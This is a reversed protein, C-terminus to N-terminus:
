SGKGVIAVAPVIEGKAEVEMIAFTFGEKETEINYKGNPLPTSVVFQGLKNTKLARIPLGKTDKVLIITDELLNGEENKVIGNLVNPIRTLPPMILNPNVVRAPEPPKQISPPVVFSQKSENNLSNSPPPQVQPQSPKVEAPQVPQTPTPAVQGAPPSSLPLIPTSVPGELPPASPQIIPEPALIQPGNSEPSPEAPAPAPTAQIPPTIPSTPPVAQIPAVPPVIQPQIIPQQVPQASQPVQTGLAPTQASTEIREFVTPDFEEEEVTGIQGSTLLKVRIRAM